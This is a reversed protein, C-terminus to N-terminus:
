SPINTRFSCIRGASERQKTIYKWSIIQGGKHAMDNGVSHPRGTATTRGPGARLDDRNVPFGQDNKSNSSRRAKM